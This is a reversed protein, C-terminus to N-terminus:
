VRNVVAFSVSFLIWRLFVCTCADMCPKTSCMCCAALSRNRKENQPTARNCQLLHSAATPAQQVFIHCSFVAKLMRRKEEKREKRRKEEESYACVHRYNYRDPNATMSLYGLSGMAACTEAEGRRHLTRRQQQRAIEQHLPRTVSSAGSACELTHHVM